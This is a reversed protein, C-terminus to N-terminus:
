GIKAPLGADNFVGPVVSRQPHVALRLWVQTPHLGYAFKDRFSHTKVPV